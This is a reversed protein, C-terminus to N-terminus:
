KRAKKPAPEEEEEEDEDEEEDEEEADEPLNKKYEEMAALYEEMKKQYEKEYPVRQADPLAKWQAGAAKAVDTIKHGAPLSKVIDARNKALFVGYAGGAPKKPADPDKKKKGDKAKRKKEKKEIEGGGALFAAMDKDFQIKASEYKKQYPAKQTDSMKSWAEGAMKAVVSVPKGACAKTFEPRKEAMFRGYAGGVVKKPQQMAVPMNFGTVSVLYHPLSKL